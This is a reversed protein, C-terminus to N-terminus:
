FVLCDIISRHPSDSLTTDEHRDTRLAAVVHGLHTREQQGPLTEPLRQGIAVAETQAFRDHEAVEGVGSALESRALEGAAHEHAGARDRRDDIPEGVSTMDLPARM